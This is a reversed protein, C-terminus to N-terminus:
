KIGHIITLGLDSLRIGYEQLMQDMMQRLEPNENLIEPLIVYTYVFSGLLIILGISAIIIAAIAQKRMKQTPEVVVKSFIAFVISLVCGAIMIYPHCCCLVYSLLSIMLSLAAFKNPPAPPRRNFDPNPPPLTPETQRPVSHDPRREQYFDDSHDMQFVGKKKEDEKEM